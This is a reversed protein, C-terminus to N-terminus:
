ATRNCGAAGDVDVKGVVIAEIPLLDGRDVTRALLVDIQAREHQPTVVIAQLEDEAPRPGAQVRQSERVVDLVRLPRQRGQVFSAVGDREVGARSFSGHGDLSRGVQRVLSLLQDVGVKM